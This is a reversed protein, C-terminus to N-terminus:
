VHARGIELFGRQFSLETAAGYVLLVVACSALVATFLKATIGFRM